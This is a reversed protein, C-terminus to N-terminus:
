GRAKISYSKSVFEFLLGADFSSCGPGGNFWIVLSDDITPSDSDFLWFMLHGETDSDLAKKGSSYEDIPLPGAFMRGEFSAFSPEVEELGTVLFDDSSKSPATSARAALSMFLLPVIM